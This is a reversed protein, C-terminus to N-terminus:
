DLHISNRYWNLRFLVQHQCTQVATYCNSIKCRAFLIHLIPFGRHWFPKCTRAVKDAHEKFLESHRREKWFRKCFQLLEYIRTCGMELPFILANQCNEPDKSGLEWCDPLFLQFASGSCSTQFTDILSPAVIESYPLHHLDPTPMFSFLQKPRIALSALLKVLSAFHSCPDPLAATLLHSTNRLTSDAGKLICSCRNLPYSVLTTRNHWPQLM